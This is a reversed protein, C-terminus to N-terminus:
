SPCKEIWLYLALEYEMFDHEGAGYSDEFFGEILSAKVSFSTEERRSSHIWPKVQMLAAALGEHQHTNRDETLDTQLFMGECCASRLSLKGIVKGPRKQFTTDTLGPGDIEIPGGPGQEIICTFYELGIVRKADKPLRIQFFQKEGIRAIYLRKVIVQQTM